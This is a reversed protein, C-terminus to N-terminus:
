GEEREGVWVVWVVMVTEMWRERFVACVAASRVKFEVMNRKTYLKVRCLPVEYFRRRKSGKLVEAGGELDEPAIDVAAMVYMVKFPDERVMRAAAESAGGGGGGGGGGGDGGGGDGGRSVDVRSNEKDGEMLSHARKTLDVMALGLDTTQALAGARSPM